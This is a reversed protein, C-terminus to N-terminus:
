APMLSPAATPAEHPHSPNLSPFLPLCSRREWGPPAPSREGGAWEGCTISAPASTLNEIWSPQRRRTGPLPQWPYRSIPPCRCRRPQPLQRPQPILPLISTARPPLLLSAEVPLSASSKPIPHPRGLLTADGAGEEWAVSGQSSYAIGWSGPPNNRLWVKTIERHTHSHMGFKDKFGRTRRELQLAPASGANDMFGANCSQRHTHTHATGCQLNHHTAKKERLCLVWHCLKIKTVRAASKLPPKPYVSINITHIFISHNDSGTYKKSQQERAATGIREQKVTAWFHYIGM